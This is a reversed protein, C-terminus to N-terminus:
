RGIWRNEPNDADACQRGAIVDGDRMMLKRSRTISAHVECLEVFSERDGATVLVGTKVM